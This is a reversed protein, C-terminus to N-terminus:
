ETQTANAYREMRVAIVRTARSALYLTYKTTAAAMHTVTFDIDWELRGAPVSWDMGIGPDLASRVYEAARVVGQPLVTM